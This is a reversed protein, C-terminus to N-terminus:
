LMLVERCSLITAQDHSDIREIIMILDMSYLNLLILGQMQLRSEELAEWVVERDQYVGVGMGKAVM